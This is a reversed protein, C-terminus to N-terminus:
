KKVRVGKKIALDKNRATLTALLNAIPLDWGTLDLKTRLILLSKEIGKIKWLSHAYDLSAKRLATEEENIKKM